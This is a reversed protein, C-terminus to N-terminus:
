QKKKYHAKKFVIQKWKTKQFSFTPYGIIVSICYQVELKKQLKKPRKCTKKKLIMRVRWLGSLNWSLKQIKNFHLRHKANQVEVSEEISKKSLTTSPARPMKTTICVHKEDVDSDYGCDIKGCTRLHSEFYNQHFESKWTLAFGRDEYKEIRKEMRHIFGKVCDSNSPSKRVYVCKFSELDSKREVISEWSGIKCNKGDYANQLFKMDCTQEIYDFVSKFKLWYKNNEMIISPYFKHYQRHFESSMDFKPYIQIMDITKYKDEFMTGEPTYSVCRIPLGPYSDVNTLWGKDMLWHSFNHVHLENLSEKELFTFSNESTAMFYLDLDSNSWDEGLLCQLLFSGSIIIGHYQMKILFLEADRFRQGLKNIIIQRIDKLIYDPKIEKYLSKSVWRLSVRDVPYLFDCVLPCAGFFIM